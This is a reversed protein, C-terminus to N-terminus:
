ILIQRRMKDWVKQSVKYKILFDKRRIGNNYDNIMEETIPIWRPHKEGTFAESIKQKHEEPLEKGKRTQSWKQKTEINHKKGYFPNNEGTRKKQM